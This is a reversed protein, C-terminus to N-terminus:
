LEWHESMTLIREKLRRTVHFRAMYIAGASRGADKAVEHVPRGEVATQWFLNWTDPSFEPRIQDAVWRIAERRSERRLEVVADDDAPQARLLELISTSGAGRDPHQRALAKTIANRTITVLWARFPPRDKGPQWRNVAKAVSMFVRQAVDDADTDQMGRRRAMRYIIPRYIGLFETWAAEDAHDQIRAILSQRTDPFDLGNMRIARAKCFARPRGHRKVGNEGANSVDAL